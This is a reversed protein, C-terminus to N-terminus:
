LQGVLHPAVLLDKQAPNTQNKVLCGIYICFDGAEFGDVGIDPKTTTLTGTKSVYVPDDVNGTISVNQILGAVVVVGSASAAISEKTIGIKALAHAEESVDLLGANGSSARVPTFADITSATVNVFEMELSSGSGGSPVQSLWHDVMFMDRSEIIVRSPDTLESGQFFKYNTTPRYLTAGGSAPTIGEAEVEKMRFAVSFRNTSDLYTLEYEKGTSDVVRDGVVAKAAQAGFSWSGMLSYEYSQGSYFNINYLTGPTRVEPRVDIQGPTYAISNFGVDVQPLVDSTIFELTLLGGSAFDAPQTSWLIVKYENNTSDKIYDDVRLFKALSSTQFYLNCTYRGGGISSPNFIGVAKSLM